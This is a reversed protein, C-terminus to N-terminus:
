ACIAHSSAVIELTVGPLYWADPPMNAFLQKLVKTLPCTFLDQLFDDDSSPADQVGEQPVEEAETGQMQTVQEVQTGQMQTAQQLPEAATAVGNSSFTQEAIHADALMSVLPEVADPRQQQQQEYAPEPKVSQQQQQEQLREQAQQQKKAKQRQKKAKKAAAQAAGQEEEALLEEIATLKAPSVSYAQVSAQMM